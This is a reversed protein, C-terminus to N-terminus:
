GHLCCLHFRPLRVYRLTDFEIGADGNDLAALTFPVRQQDALVLDDDFRRGIFRKASYVTHEPNTVAQRRAMMGVLREGTKTNMAVVSPTVRAGESNEVIEPEGASMYAMASNTTGLDIGIAIAM